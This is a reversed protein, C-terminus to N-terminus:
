AAAEYLATELERLAELYLKKGGFLQIIEVPTGLANLPQVRLVDMKEIAEIGQNAYKDLLAELVARAQDGYKTFYNRKKVNNARERRTLPPQDYAVHCLLDFTDYDRGM